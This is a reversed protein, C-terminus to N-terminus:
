KGCRSNKNKWDLSNKGLANFRYYYWAGAQLGTVDVKVTYDKSSDTSLSGSKFITTFNKDTALEWSVSVPHL